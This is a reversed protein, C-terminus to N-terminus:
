SISRSRSTLLKSGASSFFVLGVVLWTWLLRHVSVEDRSGGQRMDRLAMWLFGTWPLAGAALIDKVLSAPSDKRGFYIIGGQAGASKGPGRRDGTPVVM